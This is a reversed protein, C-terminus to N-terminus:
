RGWSQLLEMYNVREYARPDPCRLLNMSGQMEELSNYGHEVLWQALGDRLQTLRVPGNRLLASVVQVVHAGAMVSKVVDTVEHVGGSIALSGELRGSLIATWHIRPLLEHSTSLKLTRQAELTDVDFDPQYFRNFLIFGDAGCRQLEKVLNPLATYSPSLKVAVPVDVEKKVASVMKAIRREVEVASDELDTAIHYVNLELADAGAATIARAYRLWGGSTSGNLSGIVPVRVAEKVRALHKLYEDPGMAFVDTQPMYDLAEAFANEHTDIYEMAAVQETVIQEEFLSRLVIAPAGADELRRVMDLDDPLPCAGPMIPHPLRFGLYSTSLDM